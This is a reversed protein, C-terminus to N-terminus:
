RDDGLAHAVHSFAFGSAYIHVAPNSGLVMEAIAWRVSPPIETGGLAAPVDIM